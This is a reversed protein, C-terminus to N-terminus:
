RERWGANRDNDNDNEPDGQWNSQEQRLQNLALGQVSM